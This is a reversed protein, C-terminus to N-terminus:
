KFLISIFDNLTNTNLDTKLIVIWNQGNEDILTDPSNEDRFQILAKSTEEKFPANIQVSGHTTPNQLYIRADTNKDSSFVVRTKTFIPTSNPLKNKIKNYILQGFELSGKKTNRWNQWFDKETIIEKSNSFNINNEDKYKKESSRFDNHIFNILSRLFLSSHNSAPNILGRQEKELLRSSISSISPTTNNSETKWQYHTKFDLIESTPEEHLNLNLWLEQNKGKLSDPTLYIFIIPVQNNPYDILNQNKLLNYEESLQYISTASENKIKNEIAIILEPYEPDNFIRITMDLRRQNAGLTDEVIIEIRKSRIDKEFVFSYNKKHKNKINYQIEIKNKIPDLFELLSSHSFGHSATPDLLFRLTSTMNNENIQGYGACFIEFINM